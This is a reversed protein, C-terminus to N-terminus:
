MKIESEKVTAEEDRNLKSKFAASGYWIANGRPTTPKNLSCLQARNAFESTIVGRMFDVSTSHRM